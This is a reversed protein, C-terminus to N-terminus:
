LNCTLEIEKLSIDKDEFSQRLMSETHLKVFDIPIQMNNMRFDITPRYNVDYTGEFGTGNYSGKVEVTYVVYGNSMNSLDPKIETITFEGKDVEM